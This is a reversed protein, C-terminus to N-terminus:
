QIITNTLSCKDHCRSTNATNTLNSDIIQGKKKKIILPTFDGVYGWYIWGQPLTKTGAM